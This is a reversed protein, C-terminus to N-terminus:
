HKKLKNPATVLEGRPDCRVPKGLDDLKYIIQESPGYTSWRIFTWGEICVEDFDRPMPANNNQLCGAMLLLPIIRVIM